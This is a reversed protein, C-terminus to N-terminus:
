EVIFYYSDFLYKNRFNNWNRQYERIIKFLSKRFCHQYEVLFLRQALFLHKNRIAFNLNQLKKWNNQNNEKSLKGINSFAWKFLISLYKFCYRELKISIFRKLDLYHNSPFLNKNNKLLDSKIFKPLPKKLQSDKL